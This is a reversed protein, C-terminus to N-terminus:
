TFQRSSRRKAAGTLGVGAVAWWARGGNCPTTTRSTDFTIAPGAAVRVRASIRASTVRISETVGDIPGRM